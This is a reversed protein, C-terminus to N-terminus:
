VCECVCECICVCMYVCVDVCVYVCVCIYVCVVGGVWESEYVCVSVRVCVSIFVITCDAANLYRDVYDALLKAPKSQQLNIFHEFASKM